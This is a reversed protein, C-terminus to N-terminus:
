VICYRSVLIKHTTTQLDSLFSLLQRGESMLHHLQGSKGRLARCIEKLVVSPEDGRQLGVEHLVCLTLPLIVDYYQDAHSGEDIASTWSEQIVETILEDTIERITEPEEDTEILSSLYAGAYTETETQTLFFGDYFSQLPITTYDRCTKSEIEGDRDRRELVNTLCYLLKARNGDGKENVLVMESSINGRSSLANKIASLFRDSDNEILDPTWLVSEGDSKEVTVGIFLHKELSSLYEIHLGINDAMASYVSVDPNSDQYAVYHMRIELTTAHTFLVDQFIKEGTLAIAVDFEYSEENSQIFEDTPRIQQIFDYSDLLAPVKVYSIIKGLGYIAPTTKSMCIDSFSSNSLFLCEYVEHRKKMSAITQKM